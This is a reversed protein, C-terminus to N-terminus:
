FAAIQPLWVKPKRSGIKKVQSTLIFKYNAKSQNQFSYKMLGKGYCELTRVKIVDKVIYM